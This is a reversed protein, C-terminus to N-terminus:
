DRKRHERHFKILRQIREDFLGVNVFATAKSTEDPDDISGLCEWYEVAEVLETIEVSNVGAMLKFDIAELRQLIETFSPRDRYDLALCDRILKKTVPVVTDPIDPRWDKLVLAVPVKYPYRNELFVARGVILEYVIMGFSFVDSEPAIIDDYTEPAAYRSIVDPPLAVGGPDVPARHKPQDISVRHRFDCIRVNWDLDLLINDPTLNRHIIGRSHISRMALVIGAIIKMIRTSGSLQCLNGNEGDPLHDALSGNAVFNSVVARHQSNGGICCDCIQVVLPHNMTKLINIERQISVNVGSARATKM